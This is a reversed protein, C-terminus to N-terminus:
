AFVACISQNFVIQLNPLLIALYGGRIRCANTEAQIARAAGSVRWDSQVCYMLWDALLWLRRTLGRRACFLCPSAVYVLQAGVLVGILRAQLEIDM